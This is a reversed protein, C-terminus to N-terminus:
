RKVISTICPMPAVSRWTVWKNWRLIRISASTPLRAPAKAAASTSSNSALPAASAPSSVPPAVSPGTSKSTRAKNGNASVSSAVQTARVATRRENRLASHDGTEACQQGKNIRKAEHQKGERETFRGGGVRRRGIGSDHQGAPRTPDFMRDVDDPLMVGFPQE